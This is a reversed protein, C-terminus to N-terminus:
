RVELLPRAEARRVGALQPRERVVRWAAARSELAHLQERAAVREQEAAVTLREHGVGLPALLDPGGDAPRADHEDVALDDSQPATALLAVHELHRERAIHGDLRDRPLGPPERRM